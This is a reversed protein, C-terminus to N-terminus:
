QPNEELYEAYSEYTKLTTWDPVVPNERRYYANIIENDFTYIIDPNPPEHMEDDFEFEAWVSSAALKLKYQKYSEIATVFDERPIECYKVFTVLTMEDPENFEGAVYRKRELVNFLEYRKPGDGCVWRAFNFDYYCDRYTPVFSGDEFYSVGLNPNLRIDEPAYTPWLVSIPEETTTPSTTGEPKSPPGKKCASLGGSLALLVFICAILRKM